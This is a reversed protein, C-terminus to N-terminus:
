GQAAATWGAARPQWQRVVKIRGGAVSMPSPSTTYQPPTASAVEQPTRPATSSTPSTRASRTTTPPSLQYGVRTVGTGTGTGTRRRGHQDEDMTEGHVGEEEEEEEEEDDDEGADQFLTSLILSIQSTISVRYL